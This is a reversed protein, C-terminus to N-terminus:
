WRGPRPRLSIQLAASRPGLADLVVNLLRICHRIEPRAVGLKPTDGVTALLSDAFREKDTDSAGSREPSSARSDGNIKCGRLSGRGGGRRLAEVVVLEAVVVVRNSNVEM